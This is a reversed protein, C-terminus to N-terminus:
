RRSAAAAAEDDLEALGVRAAEAHTTSNLAATHHRPWCTASVCVGSSSRRRGSSWGAAAIRTRAYATPAPLRALGTTAACCAPPTPTPGTAPASWSVRYSSASRRAAARAARPRAPRRAPLCGCWWRFRRRGGGIAATSAVEGVVVVAVVGVGLGVRREDGAVARGDAVICASRRTPLPTPPPRASTAAAAAPPTGSTPLRRRRRRAEDAAAHRAAHRADAAADRAAHRLQRPRRRARRGVRRERQVVVRLVAAHAVRQGLSAARAARRRRRRRRGLACGLTGRADGGPEVAGEAEAAVAVVAAM